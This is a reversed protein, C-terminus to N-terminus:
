LKNNARSGGSAEVLVRKVKIRGLNNNSIKLSISEGRSRLNARTSYNGQAVLNSGQYDIVKNTTDPNNTNATVEFNNTADLANWSLQVRRYHKNDYTNSRYERTTISSEYSETQGLSADQGLENAEGELISSTNHIILLRAKQNNISILKKAGVPVSDISEWGQTLTSYVFIDSGNFIYYKGRHFCASSTNQDFSEIHNNINKSLPVDSVRIAQPPLGVGGAGKANLTLGYIGQPSLFIVEDGIVQISDRATCGLQDTVRTIALRGGESAGKMEYVGSVIHISHNKFVILGDDALPELAQIDGSEGSGIVLKNTVPFDHTSLSSSISLEDVGVPVILRNGAWTAFKAPPCQDALSYLYMNGVQTSLNSKTSNDTSVIQISNESVNSVEWAFNSFGAGNVIKIKEGIKLDTNHSLTVSHTGTASYIIETVSAQKWHKFESEGDALRLVSNGLTADLTFPLTPGPDSFMLTNVRTDLLFANQVQPFGSPYTIISHGQDNAKFAKTTTAILVDDNVGDLGVSIADLINEQAILTSSATPLYLATGKRTEAVGKTLRMNKSETVLGNELQSPDTMTNMSMFGEDGDLIPQDDFSGYSRYRM